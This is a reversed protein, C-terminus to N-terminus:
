AGSRGRCRRGGCGSCRGPPSGRRVTPTGARRNSGRRFPAGTCGRHCAPHRDSSIGLTRLARGAVRMRPGDVYLRVTGDRDTRRVVPVAARLAALTGPAPRDYTNRGVVAGESKDPFEHLRVWAVSKFAPARSLGKRSLVRRLRIEHDPEVLLRVTEPRASGCRPKSNRNTTDTVDSASSITGVPRRASERQPQRGTAQSAKTTDSTAPRPHEAHSSLLTAAGEALRTRRADLM